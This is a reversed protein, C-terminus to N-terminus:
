DCQERSDGEQVVELLSIRGRTLPGLTSSRILKRRNHVVMVVPSSFFVKYVQIREKEEREIVYRSYLAAMLTISVDLKEILYENNKKLVDCFDFTM